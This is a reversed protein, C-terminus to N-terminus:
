RSDAGAAAGSPRSSDPASTSRAVQAAASTPSPEAEVPQGDAGIVLGARSLWIVCVHRDDSTPKSDVLQM